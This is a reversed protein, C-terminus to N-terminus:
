HGKQKEKKKQQKLSFQLKAEEEKQTKSRRKKEKKNKELEERMADQAMTSPKQSSKLKEMEKKVERLVRKPNKRKIDLKFTTPKGFRLEEFNNLVFDYIEPDTPEKGFIKKAVAYGEQDTREFSGVWFPHELYITVKISIM